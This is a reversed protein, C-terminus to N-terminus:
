EALLCATSPSVLHYTPRKADGEEWKTVLPMGLVVAEAVGTDDMAKLFADM